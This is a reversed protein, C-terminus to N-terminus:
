AAAEADIRRKAVALAVEAIADVFAEIQLQIVEDPTAASHIRRHIPTLGDLADDGRSGPALSM